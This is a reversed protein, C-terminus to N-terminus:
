VRRRVRWWGLGLGAAAIVSGIAALTLTLRTRQDALVYDAYSAVM